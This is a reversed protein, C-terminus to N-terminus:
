RIRENIIGFCYKSVVIYYAPLYIKWSKRFETSISSIRNSTMQHHSPPTLSPMTTCLKVYGSLHTVQRREAASVGTVRRPGPLEPLGVCGSCEKLPRQSLSPPNQFLHLIPSLHLSPSPNSPQPPPVPNPLLHLTPSSPGSKFFNQRYRFTRQTVQIQINM